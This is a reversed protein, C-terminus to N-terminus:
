HEDECQSQNENASISDVIFNSSLREAISLTWGNREEFLIYYSTTLSWFVCVSYIAQNKDGIEVIKEQQVIVTLHSCPGM